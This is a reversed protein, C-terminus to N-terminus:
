DDTKDKDEAKQRAAEVRAKRAAMRDDINKSLRSPTDGREQRNNRRYQLREVFIAGRLSLYIAALVAAFWYNRTRPHFPDVNQQWAMLWILVLMVALACIAYLATRARRSM